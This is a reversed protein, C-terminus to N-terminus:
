KEIRAQIMSIFGEILNDRETEDKVIKGGITIEKAPPLEKTIWDLKVGNSYVVAKTYNRSEYTEIRLPTESSLEGDSALSLVISRLVGSYLPLGLSYLEEGDQVDFYWYKVREKGFTREKSHLGSLQGELFTYFVKSGNEYTRVIRGRNISLYIRNLPQM